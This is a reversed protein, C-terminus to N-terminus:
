NNKALYFCKGEIGLIALALTIKVLVVFIIRILLFDEKLAIYM